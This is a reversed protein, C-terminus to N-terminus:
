KKVFYYNTKKKIDFFATFIVIRVSIQNTACKLILQFNFMTISTIHLTIDFIIM